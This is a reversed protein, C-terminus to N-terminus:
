DLYSAIVLKAEGTIVKEGRHNTVSTKLSVRGSEEDWSIVEVRATITDGPRVPALFRLDQSLYIAGSGPLENGLVSSILSSVLMGHAIVGKFYSEKAFSSDVHIPNQDGSLNAFDSIDNETIERSLSASEGVEFRPNSVMLLKGTM